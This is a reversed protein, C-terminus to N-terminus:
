LKAGIYRMVALTEEDRSLTLGLRRGVDQFVTLPAGLFTSKPIGVMGKLRTEDFSVSIAGPDRALGSALADRMYQSDADFLILVNGMRSSVLNPHREDLVDFLNAKSSRFFYVKYSRDGHMTYQLAVDGMTARIGGAKVYQEAAGGHLNYHFGIEKTHHRAELAAVVQDGVKRLYSVREPKAMGKLRELEPGISQKVADWAPDAPPAKSLKDLARRVPGREKAGSANAPAPALRSLAASYGRKLDDASVWKSGSAEAEALGARTRAVLSERTAAQSLYIREVGYRTTKAADNRAFLERLEGFTGVFVRPVGAPARAGGFFQRVTPDVVLVEGGARHLAYVHFEAEVLDATLGRARLVHVLLPAATGCGPDDLTMPRGQFTRERLAAELVPVARSAARTLDTRARRVATADVNAAVDFLSTVPTGEPLAAGDFLSRWRAPDPASRGQA